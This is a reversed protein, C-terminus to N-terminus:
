HELDELRIGHPHSQFWASKALCRATLEPSRFFQDYARSVDEMRYIGASDPVHTDYFRCVGDDGVAETLEDLQRRLSANKSLLEQNERTIYEVLQTEASAGGDRNISWVLEHKHMLYSLCITMAVCAIGIAIMIPVFIMWWPQRSAKAVKELKQMEM